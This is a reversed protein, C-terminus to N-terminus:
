AVPVQPECEMSFIAHEACTDCLDAQFIVHGCNIWFPMARRQSSNCRSCRHLPITDHAPKLGDRRETIVEGNAVRLIPVPGVDTESDYSRLAKAIARDIEASRRLSRNRRQPVLREAESTEAEFQDLMAVTGPDKAIEM